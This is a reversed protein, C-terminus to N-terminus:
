ELMRMKACVVTGKEGQLPVLVDDASVRRAVDLQVVGGYGFFVAEEGPGPLADGHGVESACVVCEDVLGAEPLSLGGLKKVM